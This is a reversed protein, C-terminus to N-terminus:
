QTGEGLRAIEMRAQEVERALIGYRRAIEAMSGGETGKYDASTEETAAVDGYRRLEKVASASRDELTERTERLHQQYRRLAALTEPTYLSAAIELKTVRSSTLWPIQWSALSM